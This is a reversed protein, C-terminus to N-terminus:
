KVYIIEKESVIIDPKIDHDNHEIEEYIQFSFCIAATNLNKHAKLYRDYYGGGYGVRNGDRDFATGPMILLGKDGSCKVEKKPEPINYKGIVVDDISDIYFFEMIGNDYSKPLAVRKGCKLATDIIYHTGTEFRVDFYCLITDAEKFYVHNIIKNQIILSDKEWTTKNLLRRNNLAEKRVFEKSKTTEM